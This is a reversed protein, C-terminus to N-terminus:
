LLHSDNRIHECGEQFNDIFDNLCLYFVANHKNKVPNTQSRARPLGTEKGELNRFTSSHTDKWFYMFLILLSNFELRLGGQSAIDLWQAKRRPARSTHRRWLAPHGRPALPGSNPSPIESTCGKGSRSRWAPAAHTHFPLAVQTVFICHQCM